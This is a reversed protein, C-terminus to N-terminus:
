YTLEEEITLSEEKQMLSISHHQSVNQTQESVPLPVEYAVAGYSGTEERYATRRQSDGMDEVFTSSLLQFLRM